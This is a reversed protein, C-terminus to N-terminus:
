SAVRDAPLMSAPLMYNVDRVTLLIAGDWAESAVLIKTGNSRYEVTTWLSEAGERTTPVWATPGGDTVPVSIVVRKGKIVSKLGADSTILTEQM